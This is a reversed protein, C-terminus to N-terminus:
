QSEAVMYDVAAKIDDDAIDARGGKAPMMSGSAGTYGNIAHDYLVDNGQAIRAPWAEKDGPKPAGALGQAHCAFCVVDYTEKGKSNVAPVVAEVVAAPEETVVPDASVTEEIKEAVDTAVEKTATVVEEVTSTVSEKVTDAAKEVAKEGKDSSCASVLFISVIFTSILTPRFSQIM